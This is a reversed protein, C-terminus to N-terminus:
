YNNFGETDLWNNAVAVAQDAHLLEAGLSIRKSDSFLRNESEAFDNHDSLIFCPDDPIGTENAPQGEGDLIIQNCDLDELLSELGQSRAEVGPTTESWEESYCPVAKHLVGAISREDPNLGGLEAGSFKVTIQDRIVVYVETDERIGHSTLLATGISRAILDVRGQGPLNDMRFGFEIPIDHAVLIFRRM